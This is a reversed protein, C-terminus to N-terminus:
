STPGRECWLAVAFWLLGAYFLLPPAANLLAPPPGNVFLPLLNAVAGAVLLWAAWQPFVRARRTGAPAAGAGILTVLAIHLTEM